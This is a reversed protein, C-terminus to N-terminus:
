AELRRRHYNIQGLHYSLHALLHVLFYETSTPAALVLLPYEQELASDPLGALTQDVVDITQQVQTLLEQRPVNKRAFEQERNRTYAVGGLAAGIYTRLNGVLHLCLNGGSNATGPLVQWLTHEEQYLGIEQHLRLLDRNFLQSLTETLM